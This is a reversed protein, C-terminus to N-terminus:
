SHGSDAELARKVTELVRRLQDRDQEAKGARLLAAELDAKLQEDGRRRSVASVEMIAAASLGCFPCPEGDRVAGLVSSSIGGCGPCEM